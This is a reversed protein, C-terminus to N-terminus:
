LPFPFTKQFLYRERHACGWADVQWLPAEGFARVLAAAKASEGRGFLIRAPTQIAFATM